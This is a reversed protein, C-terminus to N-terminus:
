EKNLEKDIAEKAKEKREERFKKMEELHELFFGMEETAANSREEPTKPNFFDEGGWSKLEGLRVLRNWLKGPIAITLMNNNELTLQGVPLKLYINDEDGCEYYLHFDLGVEPRLGKPYKQKSQYQNWNDCDITCKTSM